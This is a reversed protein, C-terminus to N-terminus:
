PSPLGRELAAKRAPIWPIWGTFTESSPAKRRAGNARRRRQRLPRHHIHIADKGNRLRRDRPKGCNYRMDRTKNLALKIIRNMGGAAQAHPSDDCGFDGGAKRLWREDQSVQGALGADAGGGAAQCSDQVRTRGESAERNRACLWCDRESLGGAEGRMRRGGM